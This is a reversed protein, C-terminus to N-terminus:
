QKNRPKKKSVSCESNSTADSVIFNGMELSNDMMLALLIDPMEDSAFGSSGTLWKSVDFGDTM